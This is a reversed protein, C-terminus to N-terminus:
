EPADAVRRWAKLSDVPLVVRDGAELGIRQWTGGKVEIVYQAPYRSRYPKLLVDPRDYPEVAMAYAATVTGAPSIFAIDIPVLCRRMVFTRRAASEFVFLMGGDDAISARDSLGQYQQERTLALELDFAEGGLEIAVTAPVAAPGSL